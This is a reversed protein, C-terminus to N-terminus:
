SQKISSQLVHLLTETKLILEYFSAKIIYIRLIVEILKNKLHVYTEM